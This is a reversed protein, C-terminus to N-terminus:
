VYHPSSALAARATNEHIELVVPISGDAAKQYGGALNWVVPIGLEALIEFVIEDRRRLEGTTM